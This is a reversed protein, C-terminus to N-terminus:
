SYETKIGNTDISIRKGFPGGPANSSTYKVAISKINTNIIGDTTSLNIYELGDRNLEIVNTFCVEGDGYKTDPPFHTPYHYSLLRTGVSPCGKINPLFLSQSITLSGSTFNIRTPDVTSNGIFTFLSEGNPDFTQINKLDSYILISNIDYLESKLQFSEGALNLPFLVKTSITDPSFGYDGYVKLSLESLTVNCKYPVIIITGYYDDEPTFYIVQKEAFFRSTVDEPVSIEGIKLGYSTAFNKDITISPVSSVFYFIVKSDKNFKDKELIVNTSLAYLSNRKLDIFNSNYSSGSINAFSTADYPYYKADNVTQASDAKVIVYQTGDMDSYSNGYIKMANIHPSVSHTIYISNSSTYWYKNIHNQNYFEGMLRYSKNNTIPDVLMELDTFSTDSILQFEGPYALSKRYLKHRSVFGSFTNINRYTIEAHSEKKYIVKKTSPDTYTLYADSQTNYAVWIYPATFNGGNIATSYQDKGYTYFFPQDLKLTKNDIVKKIKFSATTNVNTSVYSFPPQISDIYLTIAQGEMQSNFSNTPDLSPLLNNSDTILVVRYDIDTQKDVISKKDTDKTPLIPLSIFRGTLEIPKTLLISADNTVVPYLLGRVEMTPKNYFIVKSTNQLTKDITINGIWRVIEGNISTGIFILKGIGNYTESYVHISIIFKSANSYLVNSKPSEIYLSKGTSDICEVKIESGFKLLSSGNFSIPNKGGTLLPNFDIIDFYKSLHNTDNIDVQMTDLGLDLGRKNFISLLQAM